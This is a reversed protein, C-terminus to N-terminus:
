ITQCDMGSPGAIIDLSEGVTSADADSVTVTLYHAGASPFALLIERGDQSLVTGDTTFTYSYTNWAGGTAYAVYRLHCSPSSLVDIPGSIFVRLPAAPLPPVPATVTWSGGMDSKIRGLKSFYKEGFARGSHTGVLSVFEDTWFPAGFLESGQIQPHGPVRVFIPAGSDGKDAPYTGEAACRVIYPIGAEFVLFDACTYSVYGSTWGTTVGVKDVIQGLLVDDQYYIATFYPRATDVTISGPITRLIKGVTMPLQLSSAIFAADSGRCQILGCQYSAPDVSEQGIIPSPPTQTFQSYDMGYFDSTCHSATVFGLVGNRQAVFGLTCGDTTGYRVIQLGGALPDTSPS